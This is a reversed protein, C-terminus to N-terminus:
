ESVLFALDNPGVRHSGLGRRVADMEASAFLDVRGSRYVRDRRGEHLPLEAFFLRVELDIRDADMAVLRNMDLDIAIQV